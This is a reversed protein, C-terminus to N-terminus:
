APNETPPGSLAKTLTVAAKAHLSSVSEACGCTPSGSPERHWRPLTYLALLQLWMGCSGLAFVIPLAADYQQM